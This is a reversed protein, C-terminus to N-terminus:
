YWPKHKMIVYCSCDEKQYSSRFHVPHPDLISKPTSVKLRVPKMREVSYAFLHRDFYLTHWLELIFNVVGDVVFIHLIKGFLPIESETDVDIVVGMGTRYEIGYHRVWTVSYVDDYVGLSLLAAVDLGRKFNALVAVDGKGIELCGSELHEKCFFRYSQTLQHRKAMTKCINKFNCVIHSLRRFFNHKAEFRMTWFKVLPGVLRICRPYHTLYHQKPRVKAEPFLEKFLELHDAILYQLYYTVESTIAPAFVITMIESLSLLLEWHDDNGPILDGGMLPLVRMLCWMEAANQKVTGDSSYICNKTIEAPKSGSDSFGYNFSLIRENLTELTFYKGNILAKLIHKLEYPCIGELLDHMVDPTYNETIHFYGLENLKSPGAVGTTSVRKPDESVEYVHQDHIAKDRLLETKEFVTTQMTDKHILCFRCPHNASFSETFGFLGHMGLNDGSVQGLVVRVHTEKGEVSIYMGEQHLHKLEDVLSELIPSFGYKKRDASYYIQLLHCNKLLSNYAAPLEKVIYYFFGLKHVGTHSGLPNTTEMDDNYLGLTICNPQSLHLSKRYYLGDQFDRLVGDDSCTNQQIAEWVGPLELFKKLVSEILIYSVADYRVVQTTVGTVYDNKQEIRHGLVKEQPMILCGKNVFYKNELYQSSLGSFPKEYLAFEECIEHEVSGLDGSKEVAMKMRDLTFKKLHQVIESVMSSTTEVVMDTHQMTITESSRMKAIFIAAPTCVGHEDRLSWESQNDTGRVVDFDEACEADFNEACDIDECTDFFSGDVTGANGVCPVSEPQDVDAHVRILHKRYSSYRSFTRMCGDQYCVFSDFDSINHIVRLHWRLKSITFEEKCKFCIFPM